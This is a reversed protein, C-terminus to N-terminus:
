FNLTERLSNRSARDVLTFFRDIEDKKHLVKHGKVKVFFCNLKDTLTFFDRYLEHNTIVKNKKTLYNNQEFHERRGSLGLINQCDTYIIINTFQSEKLNNLAWLLTELELKTSSTNEFRKVKIQTSLSDCYSVDDKIILYAGFGIKSTPNVSGDTFLKLTQM